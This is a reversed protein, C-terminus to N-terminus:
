RLTCVQLPFCFCLGLIFFCAAGSLVSVVCLLPCRPKSFPCRPPYAPFPQTLM